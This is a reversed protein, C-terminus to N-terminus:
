KTENGQKSFNVIKVKQQPKIKQVGKTVVLEDETLGFEVVKWGNKQRGLKVERKSVKQEKDVVFVFEGQEDMLVAQQPIMLVSGTDKRSMLVTVYCGPLLLHEKNVFRKRVAITATQLNIRNDEFDWEGFDSYISGDPLRLQTEFINEKSNISDRRFEIFQKDTMSFVVRIPDLRAVRALVGSSPSVYDGETFLAKGTKGTIPAKIQTYGLNIRALKLDAKAQEVEARAGLMDSEATDLDAQVISRDDANRLRELYKEARVLNAKAKELNAESLDVKAKYRDQEITFLLDGKNVISGEKFHVRDIYGDVQAKLAVDEISEVHGVYEKPPECLRKAVEKVEVQAPGSQGKMMGGMMGAPPGSPIIIARLFWGGAILLVCGAFIGLKRKPMKDFKDKLKGM